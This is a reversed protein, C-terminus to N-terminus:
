SLARAQRIRPDLFGYLIEVFFNALVYGVTVVLVAGQVNLYERQFSSVIIYNGLGNVQFISEVILAGGILTGVNLGAVTILAFSSPRLAHRLLIRTDSLGKARALSIFDERLTAAMETRLVRVFVPILSACLVFVPLAISKFHTYYGREAILKYSAPFLHFKTTFLFLIVIGLVFGPIGIFITSIGNVTNDVRTGARYASWIGFPIAIILSLVITIVMLELTRPLKRGIETAVPINRAYSKGLDGHVVNSLWKVYRVPIPKDLALSKRLSERAEPIAAAPGLITTTPDGPLLNLLLFTVASAALLRPILGLFRRLLFRM